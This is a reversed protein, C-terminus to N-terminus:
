LNRKPVLPFRPKQAEKPANPDISAPVGSGAPTKASAFINRAGTFAPVLGAAGITKLFNRRNIKNQKEKMVYFELFRNVNVANSILASTGSM